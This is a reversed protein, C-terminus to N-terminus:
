SVRHEHHGADPDYGRGLNIGSGRANRGARIDTMVVNPQHEEVARLLSPLDACYDAVEVEDEQDLVQRIGERVLYTDEAVVIRHRGNQAAGATM